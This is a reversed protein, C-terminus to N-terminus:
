LTISVHTVGSFWGSGPNGYTWGSAIAYCDYTGSQGSVIVHCTDYLWSTGSLAPIYGRTVQFNQSRTLNTAHYDTNQWISNGSSLLVGITETMTHFSLEYIADFSTEVARAPKSAALLM